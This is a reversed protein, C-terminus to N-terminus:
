TKKVLWHTHHIVNRDNDSRMSVHFCIFKSSYMTLRKLISVSFTNTCNQAFMQVFNFRRKIQVIKHMNYACKKHLNAYLVSFDYLHFTCFRAFSAYPKVKYLDNYLYM